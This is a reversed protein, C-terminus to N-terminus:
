HVLCMSHAQTGLENTHCYCAIFHCWMALAYVECETMNSRKVLAVMYLMISGM